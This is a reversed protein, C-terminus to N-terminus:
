VLHHWYRRIGILMAFCSLLTYGGYFPFSMVAGGAPAMRALDGGLNKWGSDYNIAADTCDIMINANKIDASHSPVYQFQDFLFAQKSSTATVKLTHQGAAINSWQCLVWNNEVYAFPNGLPIATGDVECRWVPDQVGGSTRM